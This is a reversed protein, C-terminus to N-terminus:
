CAEKKGGPFGVTLGKYALEREVLPFRQPASITGYSYQVSGPGASPVGQENLGFCMRGGYSSDATAAYTYM